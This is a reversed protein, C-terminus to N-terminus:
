EVDEHDNRVQNHFEDGRVERVNNDRIKIQNVVKTVGRAKAAADAAKQKLEENEVEGMLQAVGKNVNASVKDELGKIAIEEAVEMTVDNDDVAGDTSISVAMEVRRDAVADKVIRKAHNKESLTDVVGTVVVTDGALNVNLGYSNLNIDGDLINQLKSEQKKREDNKTTM